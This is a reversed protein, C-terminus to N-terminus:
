PIQFRESGGRTCMASLIHFAASKSMSRVSGDALAVGVTDAHWSGISLSVSKGPDIFWADFTSAVPSPSTGDSGWDCKGDVNDDPARTVASIGDGWVGLNAEALLITSSVGDRIDNMATQSDRYMIGNNVIGLLSTSYNLNTGAVGRYNTYGFPQRVGGGMDASIVSGSDSMSPCVFTSIQTGMQPLNEPDGKSLRLDLGVNSQGLQHLILAHWSWNDSLYWENFQPRPQGPQVPVQLPPQIDLSSVGDTSSIYGSPLRRHSSEYNLCALALQKLNNACTTRRSAERANQVAPILLAALLGIIAITVLLEVLTFASRAVHYGSAAGARRSMSPM